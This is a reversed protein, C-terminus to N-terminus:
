IKIYLLDVNLVEIKQIKSLLYQLFQTWTSQNSFLPQFNMGKNEHPNM